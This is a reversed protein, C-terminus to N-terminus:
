FDQFDQQSGNLSDSLTLVYDNIILSSLNDLILSKNTISYSFIKIYLYLTLILYVCKM